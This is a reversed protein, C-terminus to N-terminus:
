VIRSRLQVALTSLDPPAPPGTKQRELLYRQSLADVFKRDQLRDINLRNTIAKEQAPIEQFAIERPIGLATTVVRRLVPDGLIQIASTFRSARERFDLADALGPTTKELGKRWSVEVYGDALTAMTKPDQLASLGKTAFDFAKVVASWRSDGLRNVLSTPQSPDSLLVKRALAPFALKDALGNATLLVKLVDPNELAKAISTARGIAKRFATVDRLTEVEKAARAVEKVRNKEALRLATLPDGGIPTGAGAGFGFRTAALSGSPTFASFLSILASGSVQAV